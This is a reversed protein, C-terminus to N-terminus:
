SAYPTLAARLEPPIPRTQFTSADVTVHVERGTARVDGTADLITFALEVSSEGVRIVRVEVDLREGHRIPRRYDAEAHVIPMAYERIGFHSAYDVGAHTVLAAYAQHFLEFVRGYFLVGAPDAQYFAPQVPHVFPAPRAADSAAGDTV